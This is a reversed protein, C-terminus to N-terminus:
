ESLGTSQKIQDAMTRLEAPTRDWFGGNGASLTSLHENVQEHTLYPEGNAGQTYQLGLIFGYAESFAHLATAWEGEEIAEAAKGLYYQSKYGIVKSLEVKIINAQLDREEYNKAVIAARGASFADYVRKTIGIEKEQANIKNLYYNLNAGDRGISADGLGPAYQNDLGQLYGFGEDWYHEMKTITNTVQGSLKEEYVGDDNAQKVADLKSFSLYGNIIQDIQLAGILGKSLIQNLEFGKANVKVTRPDAGLGVSADSEIYKGAVTRTATISNNVAPAVITTFETIWGDFLPKVTASGYKGVKNGVKKTSANLSPDDFGTSNNFMDNVKTQTSTLRNMASKIATAMKLRDTQGTYFVTSVGDRTFSYEEPPSVINITETVTITDGKVNVIKEKEVIKEVEVTETKTCSALLIIGLLLTM